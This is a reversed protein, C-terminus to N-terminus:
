KEERHTIEEIKSPKFTQLVRFLLVLFFDILFYDIVSFRYDDFNANNQNVRSIKSYKSHVHRNCFTSHVRISNVFLFFVAAIVDM